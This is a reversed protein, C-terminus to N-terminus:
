RSVRWRAEVMGAPTLFERAIRWLDQQHEACLHFSVEEKGILLRCGAAVTPDIKAKCHDCYAVIM